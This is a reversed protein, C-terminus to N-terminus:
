RTSTPITPRTRTTSRSAAAEPHAGTGPLFQQAGDSLRDDGPLRGQLDLPDHQRRGGRAQHGRRLRRGQDLGPRESRRHQRGLLLDRGRLHLPRRGVMQRRRGSAHHAAQRRRVMGLVQRAAAAARGEGADADVDPRHAGPVDDDLARHRWLGPPPRRDLELGAAPRRDRPAAHRWLRRPRRHDDVHRRDAAGEAAAGRGAAAQRGQRVRDGMGARSLRAAHRLPVAQRLAGPDAQDTSVQQPM